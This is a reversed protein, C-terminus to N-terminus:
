RGYTGTLTGQGLLQDRAAELFRERTVDPPLELPTQLAYVTFRYRHPAGPPPCPGTYGPRRADNIGQRAGSPLEPQAPVGEALEAADTPLNFLVWHTYIGRPADPDDCVVALSQTGDPVGSWALQPSLNEGDCTYRVPITAGDAFADSRVRIVPESM